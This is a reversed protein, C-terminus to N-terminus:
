LLTNGLIASALRSWDSESDGECCDASGQYLGTKWHNSPKIVYVQNIYKNNTILFQLNHIAEDAAFISHKSIFCIFINLIQLFLFIRHYNLIFCLLIVYDNYILLCYWCHCVGFRLKRLILIACEGTVIAIVFVYHQGWVSYTAIIFTNILFQVIECLGKLM